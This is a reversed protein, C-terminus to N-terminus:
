ENEGRWEHSRPGGNRISRLLACQPLAVGSAAFADEVRTSPTGSLRVYETVASASLGLQRDSVRLSGVFEEGIQEPDLDGNVSHRAPEYTERYLSRYAEDPVSGFKSQGARNLIYKAHNM